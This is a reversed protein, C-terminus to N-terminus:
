PLRLLQEVAPVDAVREVGFIGLTGLVNEAIGRLQTQMNEPYNQVNFM